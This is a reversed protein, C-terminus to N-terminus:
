KGPSRCQWVSCVGQCHTIRAFTGASSPSAMQKGVAVLFAAATRCLLGEQKRSRQDPLGRRPAVYAKLAQCAAAPLSRLKSGLVLTDM